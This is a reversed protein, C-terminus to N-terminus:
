AASAASKLTDRIRDAFQSLFLSGHATREIIVSRKDRHDPMRRILKQRELQDIARIVPSKTLELKRALSRVTHPGTELYITTLIVLQRPSLESGTQRVSQLTVDHWLSLADKRNFRVPVVHASMIEGKQSFLDGTLPLSECLWSEATLVLNWLCAPQPPLDKFHSVM